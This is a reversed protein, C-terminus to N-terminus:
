SPPTHLAQGCLFFIKKKLKLIFFKGSFIYGSLELSAKTAPGSFYPVLSENNKNPKTFVEDSM